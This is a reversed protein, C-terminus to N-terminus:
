DASVVKQHLVSGNADAAVIGVMNGSQSVTIQRAASVSIGAGGNSWLSLGTVWPSQETCAGTGSTKASAYASGAGAVGLASNAMDTGPTIIGNCDTDLETLVAGPGLKNASDVWGQLEAEAATAARIVASRRGREQMGLYGPIAIAALIGIIAVVILLEILTFGTSGPRTRCLTRKFILLNNM